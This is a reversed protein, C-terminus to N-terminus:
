TINSLRSQSSFLYYYGLFGFSSGYFSPSIFMNVILGVGLALHVYDKNKINCALLYILSTVLFLLGFLGSEFLIQLMYSEATTFSLGSSYYAQGARSLAGLGQGFILGDNDRLYNLVEVWAIYTAHNSIGSELYSLVGTIRGFIGSFDQLLFLLIPICLFFLLYRLRFGNFLAFTFVIAFLSLYFSKSGSLVGLIFLLLISVFKFKQSIIKNSYSAFLMVAAYVGVTQPTGIFTRARLDINGVAMKKEDSYISEGVWGFVLPDYFYFVIAGFVNILAIYIFFLDLRKKNFYPLNYMFLWFIYPLIIAYLGAMVPLYNGQYISITHIIGLGFIYLPTLLLFRQNPGLRVFPILLVFIIIPALAAIQGAAGFKSILAPRFM